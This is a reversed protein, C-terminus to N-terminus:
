IDYDTQHAHDFYQFILSWRCPYTSDTLTRTGFQSHSEQFYYWEFMLARWCPGGRWFDQIQAFVSKLNSWALMAIINHMGHEDPGFEGHQFTCKILKKTELNTLM